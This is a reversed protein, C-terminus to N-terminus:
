PQKAAAAPAAAGDAAPPAPQEAPKMEITRAVLSAVDDVPITASLEQPVRWMLVACVKNTPDAAVWIRTTGDTSKIERVGQEGAGFREFPQQGDLSMVSWSSPGGRAEDVNAWSANKFGPDKQQQIATVIKKKVEELGSADDVPAWVSLAATMKGGDGLPLAEQLTVAFGPLDALLEPKDTVEKTFLKPVRMRLRGGALPKPEAHLRQFDGAERYRALSATHAADYSGSLCGTLTILGAAAAALPISRRLLM